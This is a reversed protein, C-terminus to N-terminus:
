RKKRMRQPMRRKMQRLFSEYRSKRKELAVGYEEKM